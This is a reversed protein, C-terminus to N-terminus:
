PAADEKATLPRITFVAALLSGNESRALLFSEDARARTEGKLIEGRSDVKVRLLYVAGELPEWRVDAALTPRAGPDELYAGSEIRADEGGQVVIRPASIIRGKHLGAIGLMDRKEEPKAELALIALDLDFTGLDPILRAFSEPPRDEPVRAEFIRIEIM